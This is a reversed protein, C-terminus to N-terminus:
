VRPANTSRFVGIAQGLDHSTVLLAATSASANKMLVAGEGAEENLLAVMGALAHLKENQRESSLKIGNMLRAVQQIDQIVGSMADGAQQALRNGSETIDASRSIIDHIERAATASRRALSRVESAVVAFGRGHEGARAAEVAANLALINTQFAIGDIVDTIRGIQMSSQKIMAIREIVESVVKGSRIVSDATARALSDASRADAENAAVAGSVEAMAQEIKRFAAMQGDFRASLAENDRMTNRSARDSELVSDRVSILTRRMSAEMEQMGQVLQGIEDRPMAAPERSAERLNGAAIRAALAQASRLPPIIARVLRWALLGGLWVAAVGLAGLILCSEPYAARSRSAILDAQQKQFALLQRIKAEHAASLPELQAPVLEEVENTRGMSKLAFVKDRQETFRVSAAGAQAVLHAEEPLLPLANLQRRMEAIEADGQAVQRGYFEALELSDSKALAIARVTNLKVASLWDATMQQKKLKDNVLHGAMRNVESLRWLALAICCALLGILIAFATWLRTKIRRKKSLVQREENAIRTTGAGEEFPKM